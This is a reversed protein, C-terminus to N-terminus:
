SHCSFHMRATTTQSNHQLIESWAYPPNVNHWTLSFINNQETSLFIRTIKHPRVRVEGFNAMVHNHIPITSKLLRIRRFTVAAGSGHEQSLERVAALM